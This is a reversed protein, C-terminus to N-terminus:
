LLFDTQVLPAGPQLAIALDANGDGDTDGAVWRYGDAEYTRLEGATGSFANGGIWTFAQDGGATSNADVRTLDFRDSGSVFDGILDALAAVSDSASDYRFTDAGAGGTLGDAGTGGILVDAGGGGYITDHGGGGFLILNGDQVDRGDINALQGGAPVSSGNVILTGSPGVNGNNLVIEYSPKQSPDTAFRNNLSISEINTLADAAFEIHTMGSGASIVLADRGDGGDVRDTAGWRSGEFFFVDVGDGGTLNDVGHGGYVLFRGDTEASGDFTFDEGDLLSQANVIMQQGAAVNGDVTTVDYDYRNNATDGYEANAGTQLSISEINALNTNNFVATVNGQLVVADRGDGGNAVDGGSLTTGLYLVDNGGGGLLTDTGGGAILIDNGAGSDLRNDAANGTLTDNGSGSTANEITVGNAITFGGYIGFAYSMWGGGGAAYKLTAPRLDINTNRAGSYTIQDVGGADWISSYFTSQGQYYGDRSTAADDPGHQAPQGTAADVYVGWENVDKLVYTNNGTAWEENVGYKDQIVAIDLAMLSGLWGYGENNTEALGYPSDEWGDNYSMMTYVGQNLGYTGQGGDDGPVLANVGPMVSSGGGTDHPHALGMGHGFEHILTYFSFGGPQLMQATWREDASNFQAVGEDAYDPPNMSGLLSLGPGPTGPYSFYFFDADFGDGDVGAAYKKGAEPGLPGPKYEVTEDREYLGTTSNFTYNSVFVVDAVKSFEFAATLMAQVEYQYPNQVVVQAPVTTEPHAYIDGEGGFYLYIVNKGPFGLANGAVDVSDAAPKGTPQTGEIADPNGTARTGENGDPNSRAVHERNVMVGGWDISHLPSDISYPTAYSLNDSVRAFIEYDGIFDGIGDGSQDFSSANVYYTGTYPAEFTMLADLGNPTNPGGGDAYSLLNGSDDYLELYADPLPTGNNEEVTMGGARAYQGFDYTEGATLTVKFWDEDGPTDIAALVHAGDVVLTGTTNEDPTYKDVLANPGPINWASEVPQYNAPRGSDGADAPGVGIVSSAIRGGAGELVFGTGFNITAASGASAGDLAVQRAERTFTGVRLDVGFMDQYAGDAVTYDSFLRSAFSNHRPM